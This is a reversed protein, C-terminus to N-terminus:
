PPGLRGDPDARYKAGTINNHVDINPPFLIELDPETVRGVEMETVAYVTESEISSASTGSRRVARIPLWLGDFEAFQTVDTHEKNYGGGNPAQYLYEARVPIWSRAPDVHFTKRRFGEYVSVDILPKGAAHLSTFEVRLGRDLSNRIWQLLSQPEGDELM